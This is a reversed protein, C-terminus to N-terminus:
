KKEVRTMGCKPCRGPTDAAACGMPCVYKKVAVTAPPQETPKSCAAIVSVALITAVTIASQKM